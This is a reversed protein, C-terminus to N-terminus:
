LIASPCLSNFVCDPCKPSRAVCVARGHLIISNSFFIWSNKPILANLELEIKEPNEQATLGLRNGLRIVHTDVVIGSPIGFAAGLVCNATKRGVGALSELAEMTNPVEGGYREVIAAACAIINKAKNKYFGTSHILAELEAPDAAAFDRATKYRAFLAPTVINVRADTCQASLITAVLLQLPTRHELQTHADSYHKRLLALIKKARAKKEEFQEAKKAM